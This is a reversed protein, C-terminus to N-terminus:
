KISAGVTDRLQSSVNKFASHLVKDGEKIGMRECLGGNVELVALADSESDVPDLSLPKANAAIHEITGDDSIFIMDLPLFTNKMWFSKPGSEKFLFLMGEDDPMDNVFMLGREQQEPTVALKIKFEHVASANQGVIQLTSSDFEMAKSHTPWLFLAFVFLHLQFKFYNNM